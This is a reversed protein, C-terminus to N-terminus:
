VVERALLHDRLGREGSRMMLDHNFRLAPRALRGAVRVLSKRVVVDEDFVALTGCGDATVTWQSTGALDGDMRARLVRGDSDEVEQRVVFVLDYPLLSRCRIEGSVDDVQRASRVQPWWAPYSAVDVLAAYVADPDTRLRWESRFVYSDTMSMTVFDVAGANVRDTRLRRLGVCQGGDPLRHM